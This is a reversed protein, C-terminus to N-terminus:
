FSVVRNANAVHHLTYLWIAKSVLAIQLLIYSNFNILDVSSLKFEFPKASNPRIDKRGLFMTIKVLEM